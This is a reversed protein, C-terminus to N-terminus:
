VFGGILVDDGTLVQMRTSLAAMRPITTAAPTLRMVTGAGLNTVYLEGSEDEGFASPNTSQGVQTTTWNGGSDPSAAWIHGDVYDGYVYYGYLAPLARGRYRYGGTVSFGGTSDHHYEIVPPTHNPLSCGTSPNFCHTAEFVSWGYNRGGGSGAP